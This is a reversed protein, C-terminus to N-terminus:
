KIIKYMKRANGIGCEDAYKGFYVMVKRGEGLATDIVPKFWNEMEEKSYAVHKHMRLYAIKGIFPTVLKNNKKYLRPMDAFAVSVNREELGNFVSERVWESNRFEVVCPFAKFYGLLKALYIRNEPTYSFYPPFQFLLACLTDTKVLPELMNIFDDAAKQWDDKIEHTLLRNAKVSFQLNSESRDVFKEMRERSPIGYFTFNLEVTDFFKSYCSLFDDRNMNEPYFIGKWEPYDYGSTGILINQNREEM